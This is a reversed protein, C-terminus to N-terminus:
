GTLRGPVLVNIRAMVTVPLYSASAKAAPVRSRLIFQSHVFYLVYWPLSCAETQLSYSLLNEVFVQLHLSYFLIGGGLIYICVCAYIKAKKPGCGLCISTGLSGTWSSSCIGAVAM